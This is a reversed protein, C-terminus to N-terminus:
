MEGRCSISALNAAAPTVTVGNFQMFDPVVIITTAYLLKVMECCKAWAAMLDFVDAQRDMRLCGPMGDLPECCDVLDVIFLGDFINKSAQLFM